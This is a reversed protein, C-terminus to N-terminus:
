DRLAVLPDIRAARLSPALCALSAVVTFIVAVAAFSLRTEATSPTARLVRYGLPSALELGARWLITKGIGPEGEVLLAAPLGDVAALSAELESLEQERGVIEGRVAQAVVM